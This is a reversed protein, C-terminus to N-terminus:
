DKLTGSLTEMAGRAAANSMHGYVHAHVRIDAHGM